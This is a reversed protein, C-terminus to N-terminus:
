KLLILEIPIVHTSQACYRWLTFLPDTVIEANQKNMTESSAYSKHIYWLMEAHILLWMSLLTRSSIAYGVRFM